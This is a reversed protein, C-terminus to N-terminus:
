FQYNSEFVKTNLSQKNFLNRNFFPDDLITIIESQKTVKQKRMEAELYLTMIFADVRDTNIDDRYAILEKLLPISRITHLNTSKGDDNREEVLWSNILDEGYERLGVTMHMGKRRIVKSDQIIDDILTPRDALLYLANKSEFYDFIGKRENEYLACANYYTILRRSIEYYKKSTEPRGTYEAVIKKNIRDYIITSGLSGTGSKDQDYPDIGGIYMGYPVKGAEDTYPHNYIVVCGETLAGPKLPYDNIPAISTSIKWTVEGDEEIVLNGIYDANRIRENAELYALRHKLDAVPFVMGGLNVIAESPKFPKEAMYRIIANKDRAGKIVKKREKLEREKAGIIDSNGDEDYFGETNLYEPSFFGCKTGIREEDWVNPITYVNYPEPYYFLEELGTFNAGESGGTGFAIMTGFTVAGQEMSNRAIQWATLLSPFKGAEEFLILKGRKGRIRDPNDKLSLGLIESKFGEEIKIGDKIKEFSARKHMDKDKFQRRKSWITNADIFAMNDWAKTLLGDSTLYEKEFAVAYSKSGPILFYNRNLMSGGKFSFGRGRTKVVAAHSGKEEAEELYHFYEYDGDWVKPFGKIREGRIRSEGQVQKDSEVIYIPSYNLYFYYYGPIWDFGLNYGELCRRREERWFKMYNSSSMDNIPYRTYCGFEEFHAASLRFNETRSLM